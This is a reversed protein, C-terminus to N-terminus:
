SGSRLGVARGVCSSLRGPGCVSPRVGEWANQAAEVATWRLLRSGSKSLKGSRASEGSQRVRPALGSYGVLRGPTAFRSVDGIAVACNLALLTGLGPITELLEVRRDAHALPWLEEEARSIRTDLLDVLELAEVVSRRWVEPVGRKELLAPANTRRLEGLPVRLRWQTLIGFVRNKASTRLRVLHMRRALREHLEREELSPIRVAPVLDRRALEALVRADVKDTKAALPAVARVKRCDAVEVRWGCAELRDRVWAAGSMMELCAHVDPGLRAVLKMLGDVDAPV